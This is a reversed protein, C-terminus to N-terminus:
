KENNFMCIKSMRTAREGGHPGLSGLTQQMCLSKLVTVVVCQWLDCKQKRKLRHLNYPFCYFAHCWRIETRWSVPDPSTSPRCLIRAHSQSLCHLRYAYRKNKRCCKWVGLCHLPCLWGRVLYENRTLTCKGCGEFHKIRSGWGERISVRNESKSLISM